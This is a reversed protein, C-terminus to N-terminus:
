GLVWTFALTEISRIYNVTSIKFDGGDWRPSSNKSFYDNSM